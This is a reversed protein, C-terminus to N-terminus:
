GEIRLVASVTDTKRAASAAAGAAAASAAASAAAMAAAAALPTPAPAPSATALLSVDAVVEGASVLGGAALYNYLPSHVLFQAHLRFFSVLVCSLRECDSAVDTPATEMATTTTTTTTAAATTTETTSMSTTTAATMTTTTTM